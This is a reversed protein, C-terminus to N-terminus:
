TNCLKSANSEFWNALDLKFGKTGFNEYYHFLEKSRLEQPVAHAIWYAWDSVIHSSNGGADALTDFSCLQALM